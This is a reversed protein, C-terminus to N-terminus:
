DEFDIFVNWGLSSFVRHAAEAGPLSLGLAKGAKLATGAGGPYARIRYRREGQNFVHDILDDLWWSQACGASVARAFMKLDLNMRKALLMGEYITLQNMSLMLQNIQKTMQGNGNEGLYTVTRGVIQLIPLCRKYTEYDGGVFITLRANRAGVSSGSVPADLTEVGRQRLIASIEKAMQPSTSSFDVFVLGKKAGKIIGENGLAVKEVADAHLSAMVIDSRQAVESPTAATSAGEHALLKMRNEDLDLVTMRFGYRLLLLAMPGGMNGLGIFGIRESQPM